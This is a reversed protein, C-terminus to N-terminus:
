CHIRNTDAKIYAQQQWLNNSRQFVYVAGTNRTQPVDDQTQSAQTGTGASDEQTASVALTDGDASLTIAFGFLDGWGVFDVGRNNSSKLYAQQQWDDGNRVFVYVAGASPVSNDNQDGNIGTAASEEGYAGVALTNGDASLSIASGFWDHADSNSAKIYAQQHWGNASYAFVYVAGARPASYDNQNGNIGTATSNEEDAAVVMTKGDASVSVASGFNDFADTNSAKFYGIAEELTSEILQQASAVCGDANCAEVIYRANVRKHLAVRHDYFEAAAAIEGSVDSFGSVGDPNELVRYFQAGMDQSWRIRFTKDAILEISASVPLLSPASASVSPNTNSEARSEELNSIGDSDDDWRETDFQEATINYTQTASSGTDFLKEFSALTTSGNNDSFTVSLQNETNTPFDDSVTWTEDVVWMAALDKEGWGVRVQLTNSQYQPVTINFEIRTSIVNASEEASATSNLAQETTQNTGDASDDDAILNEGESTGADVDTNSQPNNSNSCGGALMATVMLLIILRPRPQTKANM